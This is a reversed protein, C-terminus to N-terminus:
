VTLVYGITKTILLRYPTFQRPYKVYLANTVVVGIWEKVEQHTAQLYAVFECQLERVKRKFIDMQAQYSRHHGGDHYHEQILNHMKVAFEPHAKMDAKNM